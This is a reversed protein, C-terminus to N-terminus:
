AKPITVSFSFLLLMLPVEADLAVFGPWCARGLVMLSFSFFCDICVLIGGVLVLAVDRYGM